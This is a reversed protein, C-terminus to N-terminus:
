YDGVLLWWSYVIYTGSMQSVQQLACEHVFQKLGICSFM